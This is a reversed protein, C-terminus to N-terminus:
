SMHCVWISISQELSPDRGRQYAPHRVGREEVAAEGGPEPEAARHEGHRAAPPPVLDCEVVALAPDDVAAPVYPALM